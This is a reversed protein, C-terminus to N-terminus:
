GTMAIEVNDGPTANRRPKAVLPPYMNCSHKGRGSHTFLGYEPMGTSCGPATELGAIEAKRPWPEGRRTACGTSKRHPRAAEPMAAAAPDAAPRAPAAIAASSAVGTRAPPSATRPTSLRAGTSGPAPPAAPGLPPMIGGVARRHRVRAPSTLPASRRAAHDTGLGATTTPVAGGALKAALPLPVPEDGAKIRAIVLAASGSVGGPM